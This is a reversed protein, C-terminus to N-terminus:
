VLLDQVGHADKSGSANGELVGITSVGPWGDCFASKLQADSVICAPMVLM